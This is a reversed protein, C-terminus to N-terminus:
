RSAPSRRMLCKVRQDSAPATAPVPRKAPSADWAPPAVVPVAVFAVRVDAADAEEVVSEVAADDFGDAAVAVV